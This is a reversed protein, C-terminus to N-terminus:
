QSNDYGTVIFFFRHRKKIFFGGAHRRLHFGAVARLKLKDKHVVAGAVQQKAVQAGAMHAGVVAHATGAAVVAQVALEAVVVQGACVAVVERRATTAVVLDQTASAGVFTTTVQVMPPVIEPYQSIPLSSMAVLGLLVMIISIVMAVIPRNVFFAGM